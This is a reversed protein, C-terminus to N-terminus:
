TFNRINSYQLTSYAPRLPTTTLTTRELVTPSTGPELKASPQSMKHNGQSLFNGAKPSTAMTTLPKKTITMTPPLFPMRGNFVESALYEADLGWIFRDLNRRPILLPRLAPKTKVTDFHLGVRRMISFYMFSVLAQSPFQSSSISLMSISLLRSDNLCSIPM